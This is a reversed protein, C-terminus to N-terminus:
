EVDECIIQRLNTSQAWLTRQEAAFSPKQMVSSAQSALRSSPMTELIAGGNGEVANGDLVLVAAGRCLPSFQVPQQPVLGQLVRLHHPFPLHLVVQRQPTVM